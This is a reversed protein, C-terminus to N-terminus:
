SHDPCRIPPGPTPVPPVALPRAPPGLVVRGLGDTALVQVSVIRAALTEVRWDALILARRSTATRQAKLIKIWYGEALSAVITEEAWGTGYKQWANAKAGRIPNTIEEPLADLPNELIEGPKKEVGNDTGLDFRWESHVPTVGPQFYSVQGDIKWGTFPKLKQGELPTLLRRADITVYRDRGAWWGVAQQYYTGDPKRKTVLSEADAALPLGILLESLAGFVPRPM